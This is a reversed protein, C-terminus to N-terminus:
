KVLICRQSLKLADEDSQLKVVLFPREIDREEPDEPLEIEIGLCECVSLLEPVRFEKHAVAFHIFYEKM